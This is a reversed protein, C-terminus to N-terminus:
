VGADVAQPFHAIALAAVVEISRRRDRVGRLPLACKTYEGQRHFVHPRGAPDACSQAPASSGTRDFGTKPMAACSSSSWRGRNDQRAALLDGAM